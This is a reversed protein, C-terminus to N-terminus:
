AFWYVISYRSWPASLANVSHREDPSTSFIVIRNSIPDIVHHSGDPRSMVLEGGSNEQWEHGTYYVLCLHRSGERYDTHARSFNHPDMKVIQGDVTGSLSVQTTRSLWDLFAPSHIMENFLMFHFAAGGATFCASMQAQQYCYFRLDDPLADWKERPINTRKGEYRGYIETYALKDRVDQALGAEKEPALFDDLVRIGKFTDFHRTRHIPNIWSKADM